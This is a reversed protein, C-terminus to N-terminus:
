TTPLQEFDVGADLDVAHVAVERRRARTWGPLTTPTDLDEDRLSDLAELFTATGETM